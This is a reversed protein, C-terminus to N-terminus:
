ETKPLQVNQFKDAFDMNSLTTVFTPKMMDYAGVELLSMIDFDSSKYKSANEAFNYVEYSSKSKALNDGEVGVNNRLRTFTVDMVYDCKFPKKNILDIIM